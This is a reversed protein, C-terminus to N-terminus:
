EDNDNDDDSLIKEMDYLINYTASNNALITLDQTLNERISSDSANLFQYTSLLYSYVEQSLYINQILCLYLQHLADLLTTLPPLSLQWETTLTQQARTQCQQIDQNSLIALESEIM